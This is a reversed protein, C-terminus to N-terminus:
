TIVGVHLADIEARDVGAVCLPGLPQRELFEFEPVLMDLRADHGLWYCSRKVLSLLAGM